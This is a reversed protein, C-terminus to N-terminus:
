TQRQRGRDAEIEKESQRHLSCARSINLLETLNASNFLAVYFDVSTHSDLEDSGYTHACM